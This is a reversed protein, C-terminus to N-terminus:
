PLTKKYPYPKGVATWILLIWSREARSQRGSRRFAEPKGALEAGKTKRGAPQFARGEPRRPAPEEPAAGNPFASGKRM